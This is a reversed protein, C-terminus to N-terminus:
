TAFASHQVRAIGRRLKAVAGHLAQVLTPAAHSASVREGNALKARLDCQIDDDVTEADSGLGHRLAVELLEDREADLLDLLFSEIQRTLALGGALPTIAQVTIQM